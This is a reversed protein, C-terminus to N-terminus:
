AATKRENEDILQDYDIQNNNQMLKKNQSLQSSRKKNQTNKKVLQPIYFFFFQIGAVALMVLGQIDAATRFNTAYTIFYGFLPGVIGGMAYATNFIGSVTDQITEPNFNKHEYVSLCNELEKYPPVITFPSALGSIFFGAITVWVYQPIHFFESPGILYSSASQVLQAIVVCLVLNYRKALIPALFCTSVFAVNQAVYVLSILSPSFQYADKLYDPLTTDCFNFMQCCLMIDICAFFGRGTSLIHFYNVDDYKQTVAQAVIKVQQQEQPVQLKQKENDQDSIPLLDQSLKIDQSTTMILLQSSNNELVPLNSNSAKRSAQEQHVENSFVRPRQNREMMLSQHPSMNGGLQSMILKNKHAQEHLHPQLISGPPTKMRSKISQLMQHESILQEEQEKSVFNILYSQFIGYFLYLAGCFAFPGVYGIYYSLFASVLLGVISGFAVGFEMYSVLEEQIDPFQILLEAYAATQLLGTAIGQVIRGAFGVTLFFPIFLPTYAVQPVQKKDFQDPLFPALVIFFGEKLGNLFVLSFITKNLRM